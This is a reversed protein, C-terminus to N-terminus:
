EASLLGRNRAWVDPRLENIRRLPWGNDLKIIIDVLYERVSIGLRRASMVLTYAGALQGAASVSGSFLFNKRGVAPERIQREVEGNDIEFRGDEFCRRVFPRQNQAYGVATALKSSPLFSDAHTDVWTDFADLLPIAERCRLALRDSPGMGLKKARAEIAYIDAIYKLPVGARVDGLKYAAHFYRRVHMLCGLRREDPVLQVLHGDEGTVMSAYGGYDDCQIFGTTTLLWAAIDEARWTPTFVFGVLPGTGVMCWLHGRRKGNPADKDLYDLRTDDVGLYFDALISSVTVQAVPQVLATAYNWYGYATNM